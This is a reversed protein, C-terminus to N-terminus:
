GPVTAYCNSFDRRVLDRHRIYVDLPNDGLWGVYGEFDDLMYITLLRLWDDGDRRGYKRVIESPTMNEFGGPGLLCALALPPVRTLEVYADFDMDSLESAGEEQYEPVLGTLAFSSVRFFPVLRRRGDSNLALENEIVESARTLSTADGDFYLVTCPMPLQRDSNEVFVCLWGHSPLPLESVHPLSCCDFQAAFHLREGLVNTPWALGLPLDPLGGIRSSGVPAEERSLRRWENIAAIRDGTFSPIRQRVFAVSDFAPDRPAALAYVAPRAANLIQDQHAQLGLATIRELLDQKAQNMSDPLM